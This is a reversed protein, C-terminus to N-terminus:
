HIFGSPQTRKYIGTPPKPHSNLAHAGTEYNLYTSGIALLQRHNYRISVARLLMHPSCLDHMPAVLVRVDDDPSPPLYARKLGFDL